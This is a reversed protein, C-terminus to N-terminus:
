IDICNEGRNYYEVNGSAITSFDYSGKTLPPKPPARSVFKDLTKSQM